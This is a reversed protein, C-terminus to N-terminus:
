NSGKLPKRKLDTEVPVRRRRRPNRFKVVNGEDDFFKGELEFEDMQRIYRDRDIEYLELYPERDKESTERWLGGLKRM